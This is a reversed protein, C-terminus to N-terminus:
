NSSSFYSMVEDGKQTPGSALLFYQKWHLWSIVPHDTINLDYSKKLVGNFFFRMNKVRCAESWSNTEVAYGGGGGAGRRFNMRGKLALLGREFLYPNAM